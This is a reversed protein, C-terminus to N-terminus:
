TVSEADREGGLENNVLAENHWCRETNMLDDTNKNVMAGLRGAHSLLMEAQPITEQGMIKKM